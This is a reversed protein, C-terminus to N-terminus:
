SRFKVQAPNVVFHFLNVTDHRQQFLMSHFDDNVQMGSRIRFDAFNGTVNQRFGGIKGSQNFCLFAQRSVGFAIRENIAVIQQVLWDSRFCRKCRPLLDNFGQDLCNAFYIRHRGNDNLWTGRNIIKISSKLRNPSLVNNIRRM